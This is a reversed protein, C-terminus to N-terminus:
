HVGIAVVIKDFRDDIGGGCVHDNKKKSPCLNCHGPCSFVNLMGLAQASQRVATHYAPDDYRASGRAFDGEIPVALFEGRAFPALLIKERKEDDHCSGSSVNLRYNEPVEEVPVALLENWSKSYGYCRIDLRQKLLNFWFRVTAVSDFDGDVYLRLVINKPIKLFATEIKSKDHLLYITNQCQRLFPVPYRWARLSYCWEGCEGMGPCTVLPLTSFAAFDPLKKNGRLNFIPSYITGAEMCDAFRLLEGKWTMRKSSKRIKRAIERVLEITEKVTNNVCSLAIKMATKRNVTPAYKM